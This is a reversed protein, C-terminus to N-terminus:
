ASFALHSDFVVASNLIEAHGARSSHEQTCIRMPCSNGGYAPGKRCIRKWFSVAERLERWHVLASSVPHKATHNEPFIRYRFSIHAPKFVRHKLGNKPSVAGASEVFGPRVPLLRLWDQCLIKAHPILEQGVNIPPITSCAICVSDSM